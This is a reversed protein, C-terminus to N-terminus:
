TDTMFADLHEHLTDWDTYERVGDILDVPRGELVVHHVIQSEFYGYSEARVAGAVLLERDFSIGIRMKMETLYEQAEARGEDFSAKLSVSLMMTPLAKLKDAQAAVIVEFDKPHRREHVPAALVVRDIGDLNLSASRDATNFLSVSHGSEKLRETVFAAIKKTQGELSEFIVAINM